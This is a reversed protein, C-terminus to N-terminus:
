LTFSAVIHGNFTSNNPIGWGDDKVLTVWILGQKQRASSTSIYELVDADNAIVYGGALTRLSINFKTFTVASQDVISAGLSLPIAIRLDKSSSTVYGYCGVFTYNTLSEHFGIGTTLCRWGKWVDTHYDNFYISLGNATYSVILCRRTPVGFCIYSFMSSTTGMPNISADTIGVYGFSNLPIDSLNTINTLQGANMFANRKITSTAM